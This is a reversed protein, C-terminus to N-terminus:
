RRRDLDEVHWHGSVDDFDNTKAYDLSWTVSNVQPHYTHDSYGPLVGIVMKTKFQVKGDDCSKVFYNKCEKM